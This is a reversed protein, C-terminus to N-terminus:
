ARNAAIADVWSTVNMRAERREPVGSFAAVVIVSFRRQTLVLNLVWRELDENRVAHVRLLQECPLEFYESAVSITSIFSGFVFAHLHHEAAVVETLEDFCRLGVVNVDAAKV